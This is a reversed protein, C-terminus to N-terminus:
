TDVVKRARWLVGRGWIAARWYNSFFLHLMITLLSVKGGIWVLFHVNCWIRQWEDLIWVSLLLEGVILILILCILRIKSHELVAGELLLGERLWIRAIQVRWWDLKWLWRCVFPHILDIKAIKIWFIFIDEISSIEHGCVFITWRRDIRVELSRELLILGRCLYILLENRHIALKGVIDLILITVGRRNGWLVVLWGLLDKVLDFPLRFPSFSGFQAFRLTFNDWITMYIM